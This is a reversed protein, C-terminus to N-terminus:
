RENKLERTCRRLIRNYTNSICGPRKGIKAAVKELSLQSIRKEKSAKFLWSHLNNNASKIARNAIMIDGQVFDCGEWGM